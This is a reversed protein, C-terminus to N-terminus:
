FGGALGQTEGENRESQLKEKNNEWEEESWKLYKKVAVEKSFIEGIYSSVTGFHRNYPNEYNRRSIPIVSLM